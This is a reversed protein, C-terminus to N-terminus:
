GKRFKMQVKPATARQGANCATPPSHLLFVIRGSKRIAIMAKPMVVACACVVEVLATPESGSLTGADDKRVPDDDEVPDVEAPVAFPEVVAVPDDPAPAVPPLPADPILADDAFV